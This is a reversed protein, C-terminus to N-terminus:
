QNKELLGSMEYSSVGPEMQISHLSINKKELEKRRLISTQGLTKIKENIEPFNKIAFPCSDLSFETLIQSFQWETDLVSDFDDNEPRYSNILSKELQSLIRDIFVMDDISKEMFLESPPNLRLTDKVMRVRMNLIFITDQSIISEM